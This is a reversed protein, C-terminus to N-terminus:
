GHLVEAVYLEGVRLEPAPKMRGCAFGRMALRLMKGLSYKSEGAVRASRDYYVKELPLDLRTVLGRIFLDDTGYRCLRRLAERSLLRFDAHDYVLGAGFLNMLGYYGRATVRKLFGDTDRRSRVGCVIDAGSAFKEAMADIANIDDQLDADMSVTAACWDMATVLGAMLANQHGRNRSLRLGSVRSDAERLKKIIEWTGDQSGDDVFLVGSEPSIKGAGALEGLKQLMVPATLPLADHENYCPVVLYITNM